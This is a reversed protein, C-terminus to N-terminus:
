AHPLNAHSGGIATLHNTKAKSMPLFNHTDRWPTAKLVVTHREVDEGMLTLPVTGSLSQEMLRSGLCFVNPLAVHTVLLSM